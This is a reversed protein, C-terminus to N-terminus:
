KKGGSKKKPAPEPPPPPPPEPPPPPPGVHLQLRNPGLVERAAANVREPSVAYYRGLDAAFGDPNGTARFYANLRDAKGQITAVSNYFGV